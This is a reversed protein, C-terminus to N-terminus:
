LRGRRLVREAILARLQGVVSGWDDHAPQRLLTLSPYWSTSQGTAGWRWDPLFALLVACPLGLYGAVHAMSTDVTVVLDLQRIIQATDMFDKMYRSLDLFGSLKPPEASKPVQLGYWAIGELDALGDFYRPNMSRLSDNSHIPSGAWVLGVKFGPRDFEAITPPEPLPPPSLPALDSRGVNMIAPLGMLPVVLDYEPLPEDELAIRMDAGAIDSLLSQLARSTLFLIEGGFRGLHAIFRSFQITDGFGQESYVLLTRGDLPEGKWHPKGFERRNGAWEALDIRAGFNPWADDYRHQLLQVYALNWRSLANGSNLELAKALDEEAGDLDMARMKTHGRNGLLVSNSPDAQIARDDLALAEAIQGRRNYIGALNTLAPVHCPDLSIAKHFNAFAEDVNGLSLQANALACVATPNEPGLGVAREAMYMAEEKRGMDYLVVSANTWADVFDPFQRQIRKYAVLAM